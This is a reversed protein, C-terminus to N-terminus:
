INTLLNLRDFEIVQKLKGRDQNFKLAEGHELLNALSNPTVTCCEIYREQIIPGAILSLLTFIASINIAALKHETIANYLRRGVM